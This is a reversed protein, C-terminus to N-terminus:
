NLMVMGVFMVETEDKSGDAVPLAFPVTTAVEVTDGVAYVPAAAKLLGDGKRSITAPPTAPRIPNIHIRQLRPCAERTRIVKLALDLMCSKLVTALHFQEM